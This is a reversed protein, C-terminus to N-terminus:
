RVVTMQRVFSQGGATLRYVYTGTALRSADLSVSHPGESMEGSALVAVERGLVDYVALRAPGAQALSFGIQTRATAPNPASPELGTEFAAAALPLAPVPSASAQDGAGPAFAAPDAADYVGLLRVAAVAYDARTVAEGPGFAAHVTPTLDFRGQTLRFRANLLGADLALQVYGRLDAPIANSDDLVVRKGDYIASVAGTYGKAADHLGLAAVLSYALDARSVTGDGVFAGNQLRVFGPTFGTRDKLAAGRAAVSRAFPEREASVMALPDAGVHQRVGAGMVLYRALDGRTLAADPAFGGTTLGDALRRTVASEIFGKAPHGAVDNLGEFGSTRVLEILTSVTGPAAVGNTLRLPDVSVGSISGIAGVSLTWTGPEGPAAIAATEGLVPLTISSGYRAGTPSTLVIAVTNDPVTARAKVLSVDAGVEFTKTQRAGVPSFAIDLTLSGGDALLARSNFAATANAFDPAGVQRGLVAAVAAHANVYGTGVEWSERGPMNTATEQLIRKVDLPSLRPNAELMLAVIGATHPTAMSTGSISTYFPLFAPAIVDADGAGGNATGNTASRTSIIDVGPAVVTVDNTYTWTVGDYTEFDYGEGKKGRSSFDALAGLKDGAGVSLVWPAQAYINHTDEGPGSNSAAFLVVIGRQVARYSAQVIPSEPAFEGDSGWSNTIVRIPDRFANQHTIAYDFGGLGDLIFLGGGSGYGILSAGPAVGEYLGGSRAGTGAVTGACHTGHGSNTDTNPTGETFTIPLLGSYANLNTLAQVNELVKTRFPLDGHTADIGSDNVVVAVGKGSYPLGQSTRFRADTRLRDVGTIQRSGDNYTNLRENLWVSSVGPLGALVGVQAPTALVGAMPLSEFFMGPTGVSALVARQAASLPGAQDYTVIVELQLQPAAGALADTLSPSLVAGGQAGVPLALLLAALSLLRRLLRPTRTASYPRPM